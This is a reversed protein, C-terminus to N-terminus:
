DSNTIQLVAAAIDEAIIGYGAKTCHRDYESVFFESPSYQQLLNYFTLRHDVLPINYKEAVNKTDELLIAPYSSFILHVKKQKCLKAAKELNRYRLEPINLKNKGSKRLFNGIVLGWSNNTEEAPDSKKYYAKLLELDKPNLSNIELTKTQSDAIKKALNSSFYPEGLISYVYCLRKILYMNDPFRNKLRILLPFEEPINKQKIFLDSLEGQITKDNPNLIFAKELTLAAQRYQKNLKQCRSLELLAIPHLPNILLAQAYYAEAPKFQQKDRLLNATKIISLIDSGPPIPTKLNYCVLDFLKLFRPCLNLSYIDNIGQRMSTKLYDAFSWTDNIGSLIIVIDPKDKDLIKILKSLSQSSTEGPIGLNQVQFLKHPNTQNLSSELQAPYSNKLGAGLGYTFSDGLCIIHCIDQDFLKTKNTQNSPSQKYNISSLLNLSIELLAIALAIGLTILIFITKKNLKRM